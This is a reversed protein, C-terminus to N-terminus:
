LGCQDYAPCAASVHGMLLTEQQIPPQGPDVSTQMVKTWAISEPTEYSPTNAANRTINAQPAEGHYSASFQFCSSTDLKCISAQM